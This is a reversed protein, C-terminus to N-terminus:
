MVEGLYFCPLCRSILLDILRKNYSKALKAKNFQASTLKLM